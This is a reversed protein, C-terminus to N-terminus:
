QAGRLRTFIDLTVLPIVTFICYAIMVYLGATDSVRVALVFAGIVSLLLLFRSALVAAIASLTGIFAQDVKPPPLPKDMQVSPQEPESKVRRPLAVVGEHVVTVTASSASSM